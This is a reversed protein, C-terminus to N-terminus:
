ADVTYTALFLALSLATKSIEDPDVSENPAHIRCNPEEVGLLAIEARPCIESLVTCLPISGGQGSHVVEARYAKSMAETLAKYGPGSTDAAFPAGTMVTDVQVKAHWPIHKHLHGELALAAVGPNVGPPVRLNLM